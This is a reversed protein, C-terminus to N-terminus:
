RGEECLRAGYFDHLGFPDVEYGCLERRVPKLTPAHAIPVWPAQEIFIEQAKRYLDEREDRDTITRARRVAADFDHNCWNASNLGGRAACTLLLGVFNDADGHDATWGYIVAGDRNRDAAIRQFEVWPVLRVDADVGIEALDRQILEAALRFSPMYGRQRDSPAYITTRLGSIGADALLQRAAAPDYEHGALDAAHFRMGEPIPSKAKEATGRYVAALLGDVDIAMSMAVRVMRNDFPPRETNWALYSVNLGPKQLVEIEPNNRMAPVDAPSPLSMIQCDGVRLRRYRAIADPTIAFVLTETPPPGRWYGPHARFRVQAGPVYVVFQYPGTGIPHTDLEALADRSELYEYYERSIISTFDMALIAPLTTNPESLTMQVTNEDLAVIDDEEVLLESMGMSEWYEYGGVERQRDLSLVVDDANFNRTPVFPPRSHFTVGRRLHFTYVLRDDSITFSEALAPERDGDPNFWFLRDYVQRSSADFTTGTTHIAPYFGEPDGESCYVLVESQQGGFAPSPLLAAVCAIGGLAVGIFVSRKAKTM